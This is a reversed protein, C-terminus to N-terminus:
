FSGKLVTLNRETEFITQSYDWDIDTKQQHKLAILKCELLNITDEISIIVEDSMNPNIRIDM